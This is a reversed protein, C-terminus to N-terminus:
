QREEMKKVYILRMIPYIQSKFFLWLIKKFKLERLKRIQMKISCFWILPIMIKLIIRFHMCAIKLSMTMAYSITVKLIIPLLFTTFHIKNKLKLKQPM